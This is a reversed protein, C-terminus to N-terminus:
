SLSGFKLSRLLGHSRFMPTLLIATSFLGGEDGYVVVEAPFAVRAATAVFVLAPDKAHPDSSVVAILVAQVFVGGFM